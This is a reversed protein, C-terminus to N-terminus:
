ILLEPAKVAVSRTILSVAITGVKESEPNVRALSMVSSGGVAPMTPDALVKGVIVWAIVSAGLSTIVIEMGTVTPVNKTSSDIMVLVTVTLVGALTEALIEAVALTLKTTLTVWGVMEKLWVAMVTVSALIVTASCIESESTYAPSIVM